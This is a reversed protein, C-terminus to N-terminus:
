SLIKNADKRTVEIIPAKIDPYKQPIYLQLSKKKKRKDKKKLLSRVSSLIPRLFEISKEDKKSVIPMISSNAPILLRTKNDPRRTAPRPM